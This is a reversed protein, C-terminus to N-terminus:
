AWTLWSYLRMTSFTLWNTLRSGRARSSVAALVVEVAEEGVKQAIRQRGQGLLEATYSGERPNIRRDHIIAELSDLMDDM